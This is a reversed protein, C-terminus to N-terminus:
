GYNGLDDTEMLEQVIAEFKTLREETMRHIHGLWELQRIQDRPKIKVKNRLVENKIKDKRKRNITTWFRM